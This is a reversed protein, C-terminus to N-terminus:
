SGKRLSNRANSAHGMGGIGQFYRGEASSCYWFTARKNACSSTDAKVAKILANQMKLEIKKSADVYASPYGEWNLRAYILGDQFTTEAAFSIQAFTAFIVTLIRSPFVNVEYKYGSCV